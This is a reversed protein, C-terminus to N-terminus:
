VLNSSESGGIASYSMHSEKTYAPNLQASENQLWMRLHLAFMSTPPVDM